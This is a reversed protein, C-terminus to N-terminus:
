VEHAEHSHCMNETQKSLMTLQAHSQYGLAFETMVLCTLGFPLYGAYGLIPMEFIKFAHVYPITYKWHVFSYVNWCEWWLGCVLAALASLIIPRWDGQALSRFGTYDNGICQSGLLLCLPCVWLIPFLLMPWIGILGLGISGLALLLWSTKLNTIWHFTHWTAFPQTLRPFTALWEYTSLVAPLVTSFSLSTYFFYQLWATEPINEYHWNNVFQNLYEFTWWFGASLLFLKGILCPRHLLLCQRSRQYTLANLLVIYGLWLLPFTHVQWPSFWDFRTWALIWSIVIWNIAIWGWWPFTTTCLREHKSRFTRQFFRYVVPALTTGLLVALMGWAHWSFSTISPKTSIPFLALHPPLSYGTLLLGFLPLVLLVILLLCLSSLQRM